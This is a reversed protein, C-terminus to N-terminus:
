RRITEPPSLPLLYISDSGIQRETREALLAAEEDFKCVEVWEPVSQHLKNHVTTVADVLHEVYEKVVELRADPVLSPLFYEAQGLLLGVSANGARALVRLDLSDNHNKFHSSAAGFVELFRKFEDLVPTVRAIRKGFNERYFSSYNLHYKSLDTGSFDRGGDRDTFPETLLFCIFGGQGLLLTAEKKRKDLEDTDCTHSLYSDMYGTKLEFREFIGQFLLVGDYENFRRHTGYKEFHVTFNRSRFPEPPKPLGKREFGFALVNYTREPVEADTM